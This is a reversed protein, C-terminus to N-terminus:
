NIASYTCDCYSIILICALMFKSQSTGPAHVESFVTYM